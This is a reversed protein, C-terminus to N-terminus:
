LLSPQTDVSPKPKTPTYVPWDVRNKLEVPCVLKMRKDDPNPEQTVLGAIELMPLVERRLQWDPIARERIQYHKSMIEQRTVAKKQATECAPLIIEKFFNYVYPPLNLEQSQSISNWLKLAGEVDEDKATITLGDRERDWLNLLALSKALSFVRGMDRSDRPKLIRDKKFFAQEIKESSRVNVDHIYSAKISRIRLKFAQRKPNNDLSRKYAELDTEKRLKEYMAQRIKEQSIEPSLLFFRTAEQEDLKLGASCFIASPFGKILINKTRHGTGKARDTIKIKIEKQDQSFLPRLHQLLLTHPQDLFILIKRSLDVVRFDQEKDYEWTDHFFATPSCYGIKKLDEEPFLLAVELPLYTKGTSSPANFSINFQASETYASLQCLFTILKNTEDKKITQGLIELLEDTSIPAFSVTKYTSKQIEKRVKDVENVNEM